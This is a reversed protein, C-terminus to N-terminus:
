RVAQARWLHAQESTLESLNCACGSVEDLLPGGRERLEVADYFAGLNWAGRIAQPPVWWAKAQGDCARSYIELIWDGRYSPVEDLSDSGCVCCCDGGQWCGPVLGQWAASAAAEETAAHFWRRLTPYDGHMTERAHVVDDAIYTLPGIHPFAGLRDSDNSSV